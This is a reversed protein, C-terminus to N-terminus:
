GGPPARLLVYFLVSLLLYGRSVWLYVPDLVAHGTWVAVHLILTILASALLIACTLRYQFRRFEEGFGFAAAGFLATEFRRM